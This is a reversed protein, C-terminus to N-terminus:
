PSSSKESSRFVQWKVSQKNFLGKYLGYFAASNALCFYFPLNVLTTKCDDYLVGIGALMYFIIQGVFAIKYLIGADVAFLIGSSIFIGTLLVPILWRLLKHSMYCFFLQKQNLPPVGENQTISQIAGAVVRSKRLFEAKLSTTNKEHGIALKDYVIRYGQGAINMSIVFDDLIINPSPPVFLATRISYMGGDAGIVSGISSEKEQLWREYVYYLSESQGFAAEENHLIVDTTVAGVSPDNYNRVLNRIADKEIMTNADSFVTIESSVHQLTDLLVGMKGRRNPYDFFILQEDAFKRVIESTRDTSGDSAIIIRLKDVPYNLALSNIIKDEIVDEENYACILLSVDPLIDDTDVPKPFRKSWFHMVLPYGIYGYVIMILSAWFLGKELFLSDRITKEVTELFLLLLMFATIHMLHHHQAMGTKEKGATRPHDWTVQIQGKLSMTTGLLSAINVAIFYFPLYFLPSADERSSLLYGIYALFCFVLTLLTLIQFCLSEYWLALAVSSAFFSILALPALWRLLKHSFIELSFIGTRFPNLVAKLRLLGSFARNVIRVKRGFEKEFSGSTEERCIAGPEYVGRFGKIIVQLPNVFDNIDTPLLDEYLGKRVAYIAGDGGVVSGVRTEMRKIFGEYRWYSSESRSAVNKSSDIYKADGVVYGVHEDAFNEVLKIISEPQYFSNADSFILVEGSAKAVALNLGATKGKREEQRILRVGRDGFEMAISDTSDTSADSVVIIELKNQPYDLKLSNILKERIVMEENYCSIILTVSPRIRDKRIQPAPKLRWLICLLAPYGVYIYLLLFASFLAVSILLTIM